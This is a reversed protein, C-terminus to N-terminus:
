SQGWILRLFPTPSAIVASVTFPLLPAFALLYVATVIRTAM